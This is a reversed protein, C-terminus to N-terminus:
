KTELGSTEDANTINNNESTVEGIEFDIDLLEPIEIFPIDLDNHQQLPEFHDMELCYDIELKDDSDQKLELLLTQLADNEFPELWEERKFENTLTALHSVEGSDGLSINLLEIWSWCEGTKVFHEIAENQNANFMKINRQCWDSANSVGAYNSIEALLSLRTLQKLYPDINDLPATSNSSNVSLSMVIEDVEKAFDSQDNDILDDIDTEQISEINSVQNRDNYDKSDTLGTKVVEILSIKFDPHEKLEKLIAETCYNYDKNLITPDIEEFIHKPRFEDEQKNSIHKDFSNNESDNEESYSEDTSPEADVINKHQIAHTEEIWNAIGKLLPSSPKVPWQPSTLSQYLQPLLVPDHKRLMSTLINIWTSFSDEELLTMVHPQTRDDLELNLSMWHSIARLATADHEQSLDDIRALGKEITQLTEILNNKELTSFVLLIDELENAILSNTNNTNTM